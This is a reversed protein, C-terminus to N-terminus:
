LWQGRNGTSIRFSKTDQDAKLSIIIVQETVSNRWDSAVKGESPM